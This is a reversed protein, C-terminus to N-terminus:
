EEFEKFLSATSRKYIGLGSLATGLIIAFMGPIFGVFYSVPTIQARLKNALLVNVNKMVGTLDVGYRQLYWAVLLGLVTGIASGFLGILAAEGIMTFYLKDKPEGMALRIGIERYRRIGGILGTNWLIVSLIFMFIVIMVAMMTRTYSMIERLGGQDVLTLMTPAFEDGSHSYNRNFEGALDAATENRYIFDRFFGVIEGAANQMDLMERATEIDVIITSRDMTSIGFKVTGSIRLNQMVMSGYMTMGMFTVTDGPQINLRGAFQETILIEGTNDPMHGATLTMELDLIKRDFADRTLLNLAMGFVPGQVRTEGNEDPVDLLGAFRIREKWIIQPYQQQLAASLSDSQLLALDNPLRKEEEHYARTVVKVHGTQFRATVSFMDNFIGQVWCYMVVTIFVGTSVIIGPFFSRSRDRIIGKLLFRIM